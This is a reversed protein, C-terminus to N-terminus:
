IMDGWTINGDLFAQWKKGQELIEGWTWKPEPGVKIVGSRQDSGVALSLCSTTAPRSVAPLLFLGSAEATAQYISARSSGKTWILVDFNAPDVCLGGSTLDRLYWAYAGGLYEQSYIAVGPTASTALSWLGSRMFLNYGSMVLSLRTASLMWAQKEGTSMQTHRWFTLSKEFYDRQVLQEDSGVDDRTFPLCASDKHMRKQVTFGNPM